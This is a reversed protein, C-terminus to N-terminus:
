TKEIPNVAVPSPWERRTLIFSQSFNSMFSKDNKKNYLLKFGKVLYWGSYFRDLMDRGNILPDLIQNEIKDKKILVIPVKDGKIINLNLGTVSIEVNLKGLEKNNMANQIVARYYNRHHNGDRQSLDVDPNSITYQIGMYTNNEYIDPYSYNAKALDNGRLEPNQTARGRLLIHNDVKEPDYTPEIPISWLKEAEDNAFLNRNHEFINGTLVTGMQFSIKTANNNPKWKNIYFSSAQFNDYNSFVKSTLRPQNTNNIEGWAFDKDINDIWVAIDVEDEGGILQKNINVFNLNYYIDIWINYFSTEDRWSRSITNEIYEVLSSSGSLWIQKDNTNDENTAFGLKLKTALDKMAEFSTGNYSLNVKNASLGPIFLDGFFTLSTPYIDNVSNKSSSMGTIVYDNRLIKLSDSKNRIAISIIDGDKPMEKIAFTNHMFTCTLAIKPIFDTSDIILSDIEEKNLIYDNIKILPVEVSFINEVNHEPTEANTEFSLEDLQIDHKFKQYIRFKENSKATPVPPASTDTNPPKFVYPSEEDEILLEDDEIEIEDEEIEVIEDEEPISEEEYILDLSVGYLREVISKLNLIMEDALLGYDASFSTYGDYAITGTNNPVLRGSVPNTFPVPLNDLVGNATNRPGSRTFTIKGSVLETAAFNPNNVSIIYIPTAM